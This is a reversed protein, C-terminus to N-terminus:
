GGVSLPIEAGTNGDVLVVVQYRGEKPFVTDILQLTLQMHVREGSKAPPPITIEGEMGGVKEGDENLMQVELKKKMGVEAPSADMGLVLQMQPHRAPFKSARINNFAGLVNLKGEESRNAADALLALVIEM